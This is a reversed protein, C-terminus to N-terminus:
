GIPEFHFVGIRWCHLTTDLSFPGSATNGTDFTVNDLTFTVIGARAATAGFLLLLV